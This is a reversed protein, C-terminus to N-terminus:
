YIYLTDIFHHSKGQNLADSSEDHWIFALGQQSLFLSTDAITKIYKRNSEIVQQHQTSLQSCVSELM